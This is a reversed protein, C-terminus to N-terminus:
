VDKSEGEKSRGLGKGGTVAREAIGKVCLMKCKADQERHRVSAQLAQLTAANATCKDEYIICPSLSQLEGVIRLWLAPENGPM